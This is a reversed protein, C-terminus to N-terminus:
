LGSRLEGPLLDLALGHWRPDPAATGFSHTLVLLNYLSGITLSRLKRDSVEALCRRLQERALDTRDARALVIALSVRRDWPLYRDAGTALRALLSDLTQGLGAQDGRASQVQARAALAGIDGPFRRLAEGASAAQDLKGTEVLYEALRSTAVAPSQEDVVELVLVSQGEYGGIKIIEYPVPRLWPPLNLRRLEPILVSKRSSQAKVLYLRAYDDFFSDWSPIIIYRIRRAQILIQAEPLTTVSAITITARLGEDNDASFTGIGGLGGYFSLSVTERPPAFVVAGESGAHKALWHALDREILEEAEASTLKDEAKTVRQPWLPIVGPILLLAALGTWLWRGSRRDVAMHAPLTSAVLALLAGDLVHWWSLQRCAFALAVAVPGLALALSARAAVGTHRRLILWIAPLVLVMPLVTAWIGATMGDRILWAWLSSAVVGNPQATLRFSSLDAALFGRSRTLKMVVPVAAIVAAALAVVLLDRTRRSPKEDRQIWTVVRTLLEGAGIWALGYLPHVVNLQWSGLHAPFFEILYGVLIAAGGSCAWLRWPPVMLAGAPNGAGSRRVIWAAMLAGFLIGALIPVQTSVSIWVGFGGVMGALAFWRRAERGASGAAGQDDGPRLTNMGALLALISGLACGNALGHDDPVGPLFGAAFPFVAVLGIALLAAAFPGFRWAAFITLGLLLLGHLVPEAWLAAREVSLGIPRGSLTHDVWAVLGLWWRYPSASSVGRGFPANDYDVHRVRWERLAFMQQTQAIWHFSNESREPVILERQGHAYGTPLAPDLVDVSQARGPLSSVYEVRQMRAHNIWVLFGLAGVPIITWARSFLRVPPSM